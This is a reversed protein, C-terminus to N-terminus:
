VSEEDLGSTSIRKGHVSLSSLSSTVEVYVIRELADFKAQALRRIGPLIANEVLEDLGEGYIFQRLPNAIRPRPSADINLYTRDFIGSSFCLIMIVVGNVGPKHIHTELRVIQCLVKQILHQM